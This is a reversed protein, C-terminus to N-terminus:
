DYKPAGHQFKWQLFIFGAASILGFVLGGYWMAQPAIHDYLLGAIIPGIGAGIPWTLGYVSMYRGRMDPPALNAVLATGTPTMLLEGITMIAMSAAFAWFGKGLAVSGVGVGYFLAGAALVVLTRGRKSIMTIFYQGFIVLVANVAVIYSYRNEPLGFQEKTYVPLLIFMIASAMASGAFSLIFGGFLRDKFVTKYGMGIKIKVRGPTIESKPLTERILLLVFSSFVFFALAAGYFAANVSIGYLLGGLIPGIAVGANHVVRLLSYAELRQADPVMDAIMANAGVSFLPNLAGWMALLIAYYGLSGAQGMLSYYFVGAILSVLMVGKRGFRDAATGAFFSFLIGMISNLTLLLTITTLPTDLREKLYSSLFPWVMAGGISSLLSGGILLWFQAPYIQRANKLREIFTLSPM